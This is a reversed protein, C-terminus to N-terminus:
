RSVDIGSRHPDAEGIAFYLLSPAQFAKAWNLVLYRLSRSNADGSASIGEEGAVDAGILDVFYAEAPM